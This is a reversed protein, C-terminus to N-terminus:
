SSSCGSNKSAGRCLLYPRIIHFWAERPIMGQPGESGCRPDGHGGSFPAVVGENQTSVVWKQLTLLLGWTSNLLHFAEMRSEGLCFPVWPWREQPFGKPPSAKPNWTFRCLPIAPPTAGLIGNRTGNKNKTPVSYMCPITPGGM